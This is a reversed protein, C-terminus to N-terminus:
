AAVARCVNRMSQSRMPSFATVNGITSVFMLRGDTLRILRTRM